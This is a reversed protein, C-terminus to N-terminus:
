FPFLSSFVIFGIENLYGITWIALVIFGTLLFSFKTSILVGAMVISLAYFLLSANVDVGWILQMYFAFLILTFVFLYSSLIFYGKKSLFYLLFFFLLIGLIFLFSIGSKEYSFPRYFYVFINVVLAISFISTVSSLLINLIHEKRRDDEKESKPLILKAFFASIKTLYKM